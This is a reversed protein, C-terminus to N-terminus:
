QLNLCPFWVGRFNPPGINPIVHGQDLTRIDINEVFKEADFDAGSKLGSSALLELADAYSHATVGVGVGLGHPGSFWFKIVTVGL